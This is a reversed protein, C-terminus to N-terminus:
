AALFGVTVEVPILEGSVGDALARAGYPNKDTAAQVGCGNNDPKLFDGYAVTGALELWCRSGDTYLKVPEGSNAHIGPAATTDIYPSRRTDRFSIGCPTDGSDCELYAGEDAGAKVFRAPRITGEAIGSRSRQESM